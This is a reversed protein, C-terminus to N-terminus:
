KRKSYLDFANIIHKTSIHTYIQTTSVNSHGLLTQVVKLDAGNELLESAFTHRLTHPSISKNINARSAYKKINLFFLQRSLPKKTRPNIFIYKTGNNKKTLSIYKLLYDLTLNNIPIIRSKNGKGIIKIFKEQFNISKFSLNIVESVRLGCSYMILLMAKDRYETQKSEDIANFLLKVEEITLFNPIHQIKKPIIPKTYINNTINESQLFIFFNKLTSISRTITSSSLGNLSQDYSFQNFYASDLDDVNKINPYYSLFKKFDERYASITNLSSIGEENIKYNIFLEIADHLTM